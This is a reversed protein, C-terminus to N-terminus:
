HRPVGIFTMSVLFTSEASQKVTAASVIPNARCALRPNGRCIYPHITSSLHHLQHLSPLCDALSLNDFYIKVSNHSSSANHRGCLKIELM